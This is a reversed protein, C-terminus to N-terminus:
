RLAEELLGSSCSQHTAAYKQPLLAIALLGSRAMAVVRANNALHLGCEQEHRLVVALRDNRDIIYTPVIKGVQCGGFQHLIDRSALDRHRKDSNFATLFAGLTDM